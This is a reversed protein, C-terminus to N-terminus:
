SFKAPLSPNCANLLCTLISSKLIINTIIIEKMEERKLNFGIVLDNPGTKKKTVISFNTVRRRRSSFLWFPIDPEGDAVLALSYNAVLPM